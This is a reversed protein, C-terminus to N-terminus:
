ADIYAALAAAERELEDAHDHQQLARYTGAAELREDISARLRARIESITVERRPAETPAMGTYDHGQPAEVAGANDVVSLIERLPSMAARDRRHQAARLDARVRAVLEQVPDNSM